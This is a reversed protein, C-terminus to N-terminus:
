FLDNFFSEVSNERIINFLFSYDPPFQWVLGRDGTIRKVNKQIQINDQCLVSGINAPYNNGIDV